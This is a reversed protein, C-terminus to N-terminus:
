GRPFIRHFVRDGPLLGIQAARGAALELVANAAGASPLPAEDLPRANRVISVVRGDPGIYIIDLPILTNRMWFAQPEARPFIFLMGRDAALAKRCMLGYEREVMSDAIEVRFAYVGRDTKVQVTELPALEKQGKCHAPDQRPLAVAGGGAAALALAVVLPRLRGGHSMSM